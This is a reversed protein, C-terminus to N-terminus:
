KESTEPSHAANDAEYLAKRCYNFRQYMLQQAPTWSDFEDAKLSNEYMYSGRMMGLIAFVYGAKCDDPIAEDPVASATKEAQATPTAVIHDIDAISFGDYEGGDDSSIVSINTSGRKRDLYLGVVEHEGRWDTIYKMDERFVVKSGIRLQQLLAPTPVASAPQQALAKSLQDERGDYLKTVFEVRANAAEVQEKLQAIQEELEEIGKYAMQQEGASANGLILGGVVQDTLWKSM